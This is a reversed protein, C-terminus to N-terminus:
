FEEPTLLRFRNDRADSRELLVAERALGEPIEPDEGQATRWIETLTELASDVSAESDIKALQARAAASVSESGAVVAFRRSMSYDGDYDLTYYLDDEIKAEVEGFLSRAV